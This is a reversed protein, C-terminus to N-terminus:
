SGYLQLGAGILAGIVLIVNSMMTIVMGPARTKPDRIYSRSYLARGLIFGIGPVLVWDFSVLHAFAMMGPIFVILQEMTNQQVRFVREFHEDGTCAPADVKDKGRALGTRATFFIYQILALMLLITAYEM